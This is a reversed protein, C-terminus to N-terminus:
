HQIKRKKDGVKMSNGEGGSSLQQKSDGIGIMERRKRLLDNEATLISVQQNLATIQATNTAMKDDLLAKRDIYSLLDPATPILATYLESQGHRSGILALINPLLIPEIDAFLNGISSYQVGQIHCLEKRKQSDLQYKIVKTRSANARNNDDKCASDILPKLRRTSIDGGIDCSLLTHNSNYTREISTIDILVKSFAVYAENTLNNESLDLYRLTTNYKLSTSLIAAGKDDIGTDVLKLHTLNSGEKQLLKSITICGERGIKNGNLDLNAFNPLNYRNLASIDEINNHQLYLITISKGNLVSVLVEFCGSNFNSNGSLYLKSFKPCNQLFPVISRVGDIGFENEDIDLRELSVSKVLEKFLLAMKRDTLHCEDFDIKKLHTNNAIYRGLLRWAQDTFCEMDDSGLSFNITYIDDNKIENICQRTDADLGTHEGFAQNFQEDEDMKNIYNTKM